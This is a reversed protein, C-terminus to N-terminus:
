RWAPVCRWAGSSATRGPQLAALENAILRMEPLNNVHAAVRMRARTPSAGHHGGLRAQERGHHQAAHRLIARSQPNAVPLTKGAALNYLTDVRQAQKEIKGLETPRAISETRLARDRFQRFTHDPNPGFAEVLAIDKAVGSIHGLMVEYPTREGYAAQYDLYGDANKFHVQRSENGRNARMGVGSPLGPELKNVGGTAISEWAHGLFEDLKADSMRAGFEDVYRSRDLTRGSIPSGSRAAPRRSQQQSHHHPMGWDELHGVDGGSANFRQRLTEAITKFAKAGSAADANGTKEGHLERVLDRLGANDEILGFFRPSTAELTDIMQRLADREIAKARTEISMVSGKADAHFAVLRSLAEFPTGPFAALQGQVRATAIVQQVKRQQKLQAEELLQEAALKAGTRVQEDVPKQMWAAPDRAAELRMARAIMGEVNDLEAKTPQRGLAQGVAVICDPKM